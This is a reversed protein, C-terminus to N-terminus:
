IMTTMLYADCEGEPYTGHYYDKVLESENFRFKHYLKIAAKNDVHVHLMMNNMKKQKCLLVFEELMRAGVGIRRFMKDTAVSTIHMSNNNECRGVIAGIVSNSPKLRAVVVVSSPNLIHYLIEKRTHVVPLCRTLCDYVDLFDFLGATTINYRNM